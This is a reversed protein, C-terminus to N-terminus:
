QCVQLTDTYYYPATCSSCTRCGTALYVVVNDGSAPVSGLGISNSLPNQCGQNLTEPASSMWGISSSGPLKYGVCYGQVSGTNNVSVTFANTQGTNGIVLQKTETNCQPINCGLQEFFDDDIETGISAIVASYVSVNKKDAADKNGVRECAFTCLMFLSLACCYGILMKTRTKM